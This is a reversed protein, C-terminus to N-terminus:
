VKKKQETEVSRTKFDVVEVFLLIGDSDANPQGSVSVTKLM